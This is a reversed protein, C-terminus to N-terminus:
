AAPKVTLFGVTRRADEMRVPFRGAQDLLTDFEAPSTPDVPRTQDLGDITVTDIRDSEVTLELHDGVRASITRARVPSASIDSKVTARENGPVIPATTPQDRNRPILAVAVVAIGLLAAVLWLLRRLLM